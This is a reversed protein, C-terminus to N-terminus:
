VQNQAPPPMGAWAALVTLAAAEDIQERDMTWTVVDGQRGCAFCCFLQLAPDVHLSLTGDVHEPCAGRLVGSRAVLRVGDEVAEALPMRRSLESLYSLDVPV